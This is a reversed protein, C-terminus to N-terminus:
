YIIIGGYGVVQQYDGIVDGSTMYKILDAKAAGMQLGAQLTIVVPIFGCMSINNTIITQYLGKPDLSLIRDIAMRDKVEAIRQPEYHTFDTSAVIVVTQDSAKIAKAIANGIELCAALDLQKLIVPVIEFDASFYQIFPLQVEISHEQEHASQDERLYETSAMMAKALTSNIKLIGNPMEWEGSTMVAAPSGIGKHNPGLIIFTRPLEIRSYVMGAVAGSYRIGAHPSVLAIVKKKSANLDIYSNVIKRLKEGDKEYFFGAVAPKRM